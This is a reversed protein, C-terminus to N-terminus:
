RPLTCAAFPDVAGGGSQGGSNIADSTPVPQSAIPTTALETPLEPENCLILSELNESVLYIYVRSSYTFEFRQLQGTTPAVTPALPCGLGRVYDYSGFYWQQFSMSNITIIQGTRESMDNLVLQQTAARSTTTDQASVVFAIGLVLLFVSRILR